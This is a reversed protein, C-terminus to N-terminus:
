ELRRKEPNYTLTPAAAGASAGGSVLGRLQALRQKVEPPMNAGFPYQKGISEIEDVYAARESAATRQNAGYISGAAKTEYAMKILDAESRGKNKPDKRLAAVINNIETQGSNINAYTAKIQEGKRADDMLMEREKQSYQAGKVEIEKNAVDVRARAEAKMLKNKDNSAKIREESEFGHQLAAKNEAREADAIRAQLDFVKEEAARAEKRGAGLAAVGKMGGEAINSLAFPSKGAAMGFGAEALAMWPYQAKFAENEKEMTGARGALKARTPDEGLAKKFRQAGEEATIEPRMAAEYISDNYGMPKIDFGSAPAAMSAPAPATPQAKPPRFKNTVIGGYLDPVPAEQALLQKIYAPDVNAPTTQGVNERGLVPAAPEPRKAYWDAVDEKKAGQQYWDPKAKPKRLQPYDGVTPMQPLVLQMTEDSLEPHNYRASEDYPYLTFDPGATLEQMEQATLFKKRKTEKGEAYSQVDGGDEFAIIGGAAYAEESGVNTVPIGAIGQPQPQAEAVMQEAVSPQAGQAQNGGAQERMKKRRQLESLALYSPVQGTPNQVYGILSQDPVGKLDDQLKVINM